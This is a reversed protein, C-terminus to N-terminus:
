ISTNFLPFFVDAVLLFIAAFLPLPGVTGVVRGTYPHLFVNKACLQSSMPMCAVSPVDFATRKTYFLPCRLAPSVLCIEM